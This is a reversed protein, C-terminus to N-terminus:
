SSELVTFTIYLESQIRHLYGPSLPSCCIVCSNKEHEFDTEQVDRDLNWCLPHLKFAISCFKSKQCHCWLRYSAKTNSTSCTQLTKFVTFHYPLNMTATSQPHNDAAIPASRKFCSDTHCTFLSRGKKVQQHRVLESVQIGATSSSNM